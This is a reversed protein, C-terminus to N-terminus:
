GEVPRLAKAVALARERDLRFKPGAPQVVILFGGRSLTARGDLFVTGEAPGELGFPRVHRFEQVSFSGYDFRAFRAPRLRRGSEYREAENGAVISSLKHGQFSRGLWLPTTGLAKRAAALGRARIQTDSSPTNLDAGGDPVVFSGKGSEINPLPKLARLWVPPSQHAGIFDRLALRRHTVADYAVQNGGPYPRQGQDPVVLGQVWVVRHGRFTGSGALRARPGQPPWGLGKLDVDFPEPPICFRGKSSGPCRQQVWDAYMRGDYRVVTRALGTRPDWWIENTQRAARTRGTALDVTHGSVPTVTEILVHKVPGRAQVVHFGEPVATSSDGKLGLVLGTVLGALLLAGAIAGGILLRRRRARRRAEEILAELEDHSPEPPAEVITV